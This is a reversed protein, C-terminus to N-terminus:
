FNSGFILSKQYIKEVPQEAINEVQEGVMDVQGGMPLIDEVVSINDYGDNLVLPQDDLVVAFKNFFAAGFSESQQANDEMQGEQPIDRNEEVPAEEVVEEVTNQEVVPEVQSEEEISDEAVEEVNERQAVPAEVVDKITNQEVVPQVQPEEIIIVKFTEGYLNPANFDVAGPGAAEVLRELLYTNQLKAICTYLTECNSTIKNINEGAAVAKKVAKQFGPINFDVLCQMAKECNPGNSYKRFQKLGPVRLPVLFKLKPFVVRSMIVKNITLKYLFYLM